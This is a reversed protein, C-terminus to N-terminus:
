PIIIDTGSTISRNKWYLEMWLVRAFCMLPVAIIMGGLGGASGVALALIVALPHLSANKGVIFPQSIFGDIMEIITFGAVVILMYLGRQDWGQFQQSFLVWLVAPTAGAIPGLYPILHMVGSIFGILIAYQKLGVFFLFITTLVGVISCAILQGRLFGGVDHDAKTLIDMVRDRHRAPLMKRIVGPIQHMDALFYLTIVAVLTLTILFIVTARVGSFVGGAVTKVATLGGQAVPEITGKVGSIVERFSLDIDGLFKTIAGQLAAQTEPDLYRVAFKNSLDILTATLDRFGSVAQNYLTPVLWLLFISLVGAITVALVAIGGARGLKLKKQVFNVIPNFIYALILAIMFPSLIRLVWAFLPSLQRLAFVIIAAFAVWFLLKSWPRAM